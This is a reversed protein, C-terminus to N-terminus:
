IINFHKQVFPITLRKQNSLSLRDLEEVLQRIAPYSRTVRKSLYEILKDDVKIHKDSFNKFLIQKIMLFDPSKLVIQMVGKLRSVLDALKFRLNDISTGASLLLFKDNNLIFNIFHFIEEEQQYFKELDEIIFSDNKLNIYEKSILTENKIKFANSKKQWINALHTKGSGKEGIILVIRNLRNEGWGPWQDIWKKAYINAETVFYDEECYSTPSLINLPFQLM